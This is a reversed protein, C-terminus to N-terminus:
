RPPAPPGSRDPGPPSAASLRVWLSLTVVILAFGFALDEIPAYVLRIGLIDDPNYLVVGRGTLVGNSLLQFGFIIPYTCWFVRGLVIRSRLVFVDILVAVLVGLGAAATYTM